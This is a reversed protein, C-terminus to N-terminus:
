PTATTVWIRIKGIKPRCVVSACFRIIGVVRVGRSPVLCAASIAMSRAGPPAVTASITAAVPQCGGWRGPTYLPDVKVLREPAKRKQDARGLRKLCAKVTELNDETPDLAIAGHLHPSEDVGQELVFYFDVPQGFAKKLSKYLQDQFRRRPRLRAVPDRRGISTGDPSLDIPM